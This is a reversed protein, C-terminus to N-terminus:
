FCHCVGDNEGDDKGDCYGDCDCDVDGDGDCRCENVCCDDNSSEGIMCCSEIAYRNEDNMMM